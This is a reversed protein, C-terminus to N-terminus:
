SNKREIDNIVQEIKNYLDEKADNNEFIFDALRICASLNQKDPDNSNMERRENEIFEKFSVFDTESKRELIRKYRLDPSADVAFLYFNGKSKLIEIEGVTRISEIICNQGSESAQEYLEEAIYGPFHEARLSNAVTVMNDRNVELGRRIIEETIFGRVSYHKFNKNQVLFDVITGKGAGITGTIGIIIM